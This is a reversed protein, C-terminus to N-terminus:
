REVLALRRKKRGKGKNLARYSPTLAHCNPCLLKLNSENHNEPNGDVHDVEIPVKGTIPHHQNWGCHECENGRTEILYRRIIRSVGQWSGGEVKGEKWKTIFESDKRKRSCTYSCTIQGFKQLRNGCECYGPDRGHRRVGQNNHKAACSSNCFMKGQVIPEQCFKCLM